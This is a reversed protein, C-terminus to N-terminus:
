YKGQGGVFEKTVNFYEVAVEKWVRGFKIFM